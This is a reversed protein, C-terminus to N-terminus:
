ALCAVRRLFVVSKFNRGQDFHLMLPVGFRAVFERVLVEAVTTAEQNPLAYVEVWKSFYDAAILIFQNRDDSQPLPGLVDVVLREMSAGINYQSFPARIKRAPGRRFACLDCKRCYNKVDKSCRVWYFRDRIHGLTQRCWSSWSNPWQPIIAPGTTAHWLAAGAPQCDLGCISDGTMQVTGRGDATFQEM